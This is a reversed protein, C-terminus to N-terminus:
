PTGRSPTGGRCETSCGCRTRSMGSSRTRACWSRSSSPATATAASSSRRTFGGHRRSIRARSCGSSSRCTPSSKLRPRMLAAALPPPPLPLAHPLRRRRPSLLYGHGRNSGGRSPPPPPPPPSCPRRSGEAARPKM